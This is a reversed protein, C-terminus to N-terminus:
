IFGGSLIRCLNTSKLCPGSINNKYVLLIYGCMDSRYQLAMSKQVDIFAGPDYDGPKVILRKASQDVSKIPNVLHRDM